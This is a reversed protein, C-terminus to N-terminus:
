CAHTFLEFPDVFIAPTFKNAEETLARIDLPRSDAYRKGLAREALLLLVGSRETRPHIFPRSAAGHLHDCHNFIIMLPNGNIRISQGHNCSTAARESSARYTVSHSAAWSQM